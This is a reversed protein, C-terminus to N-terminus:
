QEQEDTDYWGRMPYAPMMLNDVYKLFYSQCVYALNEITEQGVTINFSPGFKRLGKELLEMMSGDAYGEGELVEAENRISVYQNAADALRTLSEFDELLNNVLWLQEMATLKTVGTNEGAVCKQLRLLNLVAADSLGTKECFDRIEVDVSPVTSLGLLYDANVNFFKCIAPIKEMDPRAYGTCWMRVASSSIGVANAFDETRTEQGELLERIRQNLVDDYFKSTRVKQKQPKDGTSPAQKKLMTIMWEHVNSIIACFVCADSSMVTALSYFLMTSPLVIIDFMALQRLAM